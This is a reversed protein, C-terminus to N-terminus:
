ISDSSHTVQIFYIYYIPKFPHLAPGCGLVRTFPSLLVLGTCLAAPQNVDNVVLSKLGISRLGRKYKLYSSTVLNLTVFGQPAGQVTVVVLRLKGVLLVPCPTLVVFIM